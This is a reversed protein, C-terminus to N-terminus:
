PSATKTHPQSGLPNWVYEESPTLRMNTFGHRTVFHAFRESVNWIGPLGRAQFIDEGRWHETELIFGQTAELGSARCEECSPPEDYRIRSRKLDVAVRSVCVTAVFYRPIHSPE